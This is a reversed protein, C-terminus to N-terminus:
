QLLKRTKFKDTTDQSIRNNFYWFAALGFIVLGVWVPGPVDALFRRPLALMGWYYSFENAVYTVLSTGITIAGTWLAAAKGRLAQLVTENHLSLEKPTVNARAEGIPRKFGESVAQAVEDLTAQSMDAALDNRRRDNLFAGLGAATGGAWEGNIIGVEHYGMEDIDSQLKEIDLSRQNHPVLPASPVTPLIDDMDPVDGVPTLQANDDIDNHLEAPISPQIVENHRYFKAVWNEKPAISMKRTAWNRLGMVSVPTLKDDNSKSYFISHNAKVAAQSVVNAAAVNPWSKFLNKAAGAGLFHALYLDGPTCNMGVIRQNDEAFRALMEISLSPNTARMALLTAKPTSALLAHKHTDITALWTANLFQGLGLASSTNAQAHPNGASEIQIFRNLIDDSISPSVSNPM